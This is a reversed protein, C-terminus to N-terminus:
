TTRSAASSTSAAGQRDRYRLRSLGRDFRLERDRRRASPSRSASRARAPPPRDSLRSSRRGADDSRRRRPRVCAPAPRDAAVCGLQRTASTPTLAAAENYYFTVTFFVKETPIDPPLPQTPNSAPARQVAANNFSDVPSPQVCRCTRSAATRTCTSSLVVHGSCRCRRTRFSGTANSRRSSAGSGRGSSWARPTSSFRRDSSAAAATQNDFSQEAVYRQLNQLADGLSGGAARRAPTRRPQPSPAAEAAADAAADPLMPAQANSRSAQPAAPQKRPPGKRAASRRRPAEIRDPTNGRAFPQTNRPSRRANVRGPRVTWTPSSPASRRSPADTPARSWSSSRRRGSRNRGSQRSATEERRQAERAQM